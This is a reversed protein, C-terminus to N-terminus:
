LDYDMQDDSLLEYESESSEESQSRNDLGYVIETVPTHPEKRANRKQSTYASDTIEIM